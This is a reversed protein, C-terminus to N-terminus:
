EDSDKEAQETRMKLVAEAKIQEQASDRLLNAYAMPDATAIEGILWLGVRRKGELLASLRESDQAFTTQYIGAHELMRWLVRRGAGTELVARMDDERQRQALQREAEQEEEPTLDSM